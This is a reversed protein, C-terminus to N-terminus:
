NHEMHCHIFREEQESTILESNHLFVFKSHPPINLFFYLTIAEVCNAVQDSGHAHWSKPEQLENEESRM